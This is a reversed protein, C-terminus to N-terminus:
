WLVTECFPPYTVNVSKRQRAHGSLQTYTYVHSHLQTYTHQSTGSSHKFLTECTEPITVATVRLLCVLLGGSPRHRRASPPERNSPETAFQKKIDGRMVVPRFCLMNNDTICLLGNLLAHYMAWQPGGQTLNVPAATSPHPVQPPQLHHIRSYPCHAPRLNYSWAVASLYTRPPPLYCGVPKWQSAPLVIYWSMSWFLLLTFAVSPFLSLSCKNQFANM